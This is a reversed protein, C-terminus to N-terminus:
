SASNERRKKIENNEIKRRYDEVKSSLEKTLNNLSTCINANEEELFSLIALKEKELQEGHKDAEYIRLISGIHAEYLKQAIKEERAKWKNIEDVIVDMQGQLFSNKNQFSLLLNELEKYSTTFTEQMEKIKNEVSSPSYGILSRKFKIDM